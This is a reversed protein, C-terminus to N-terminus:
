GGASSGTANEHGDENEHRDHPHTVIIYTVSDPGSGSGLMVRSAATSNSRGYPIRTRTQGPRDSDIRNQGLRDRDQDKLNGPRSPPQETKRTRVQVSAPPRVSM